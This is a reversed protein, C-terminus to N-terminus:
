SRDRHFRKWAQLRVQKEDESTWTKIVYQLAIEERSPRLLPNERYFKEEATITRKVPCMNIGRPDIPWVRAWAEEPLAAYINFAASHAKRGPNSDNEIM